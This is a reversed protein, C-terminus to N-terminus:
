KRGVYIGYGQYALLNKIIKRSPTREKVYRRFQPSTIYFSVFSGVTRVSDKFGARRLENIGMSLANFNYIRARIDTLGSAELLETWEDSTLFTAKAMTRDIYAVLEM